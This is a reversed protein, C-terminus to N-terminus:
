KEGKMRSTRAQERYHRIVVLILLYPLPLIMASGVIAHFLFFSDGWARVVFCVFISVFTVTVLFEALHFQPLKM